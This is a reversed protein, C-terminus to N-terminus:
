VVKYMDTPLCKLNKHNRFCLAARFAINSLLLTLNQM